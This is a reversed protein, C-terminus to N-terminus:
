FRPDRLTRAKLLLWLCRAAGLQPRQRAIEAGLRQTKELLDVAALGVYNACARWARPISPPTGQLISEELDECVSRIAGSLLAIREVSDAWAPPLSSIALQPRHRRLDEKLRLLNALRLIAVGWDSVTREAEHNWLGSM